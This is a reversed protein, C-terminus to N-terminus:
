KMSYQIQHNLIIHHQSDSFIISTMWDKEEMNSAKRGCRSTWPCGHLNWFSVHSFLDRARPVRPARGAPSGCSAPPAPWVTEPAKGGSLRGWNDRCPTAGLQWRAQPPSSPSPQPGLASLPSRWEELGRGLRARPGGNGARFGWPKPERFFGDQTPPWPPSWHNAILLTSEIVQIGSALGRCHHPFTAMTSLLM